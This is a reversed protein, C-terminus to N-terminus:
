ALREELKALWGSFNAMVTTESCKVEIDSGVDTVFSMFAARDGIRQEVGRVLDESGRIEVTVGQLLVSDIAEHFERLAQSYLKDVVFPKLLSALQSELTHSVTAIQNNISEALRNGTEFHWRLEAAIADSEYQAKLAAIAQDAIADAEIRAAEFGRQYGQELAEAVRSELERQQRESVDEPDRNFDELKSFALMAAPRM